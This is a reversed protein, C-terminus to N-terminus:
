SIGSMKNQGYNIFIKPTTITGSATLNSTTINGQVDLIAPASPHQLLISRAQFNDASIKGSAVLEGTAM